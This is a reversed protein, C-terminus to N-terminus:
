GGRNTETVYLLVEVVVATGLLILTAYRMGPLDRVWAYGAVLLAIVWGVLRETRSNVDIM